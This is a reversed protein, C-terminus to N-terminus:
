NVAVQAISSKIDEEGRFLHILMLSILVVHSEVSPHNIGIELSVRRAASSHSAWVRTNAMRMPSNLRFPFFFSDATFQIVPQM